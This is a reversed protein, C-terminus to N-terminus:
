RAGMADRLEVGGDPTVLFINEVRVGLRGPMYVGPEVALLMWSEFPTHDSPILHPNEFASVSVGHGAHHPFEGTPFSELIRRQVADFIAAGTNGPVLESGAQALIELLRARIQSVEENTGGAIHTEATDGWYGHAGLAIDAVVPEGERVVRPSAVHIPCCVEAAKPGSLLDALFGIPAGNANQAAALAGSFLEIETIGPQKALEGVTRQGIWALEYAHLVKVLEDEDKLLRIRELTASANVQQAGAHARLREGMGGIEDSFGIQRASRVVDVGAVVGALLPLPDLNIGFGREGYGLVEDADGLERAVPVEDLMVVLTRSGDRGIVLGAPGGYYRAYGALHAVNTAGFVVTADLSGAAMWERLRELRHPPRPIPIRDGLRAGATLQTADLAM